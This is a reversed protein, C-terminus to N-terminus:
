STEEAGIDTGARLQPWTTPEPLQRKAYAEALFTIQRAAQPQEDKLEAMLGVMRQAASENSELFNPLELLSDHDVLQLPAKEVLRAYTAPSPKKRGLFDRLDPPPAIPGKYPKKGAQPIHGTVPEDESNM